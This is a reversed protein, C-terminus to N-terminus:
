PKIQILIQHRGLTVESIQYIFYNINKIWGKSSTLGIANNFPPFNFNIANLYLPVSELNAKDEFFIM